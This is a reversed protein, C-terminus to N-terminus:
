NGKENDKYKGYIIKGIHYFYDLVNMQEKEDYIGVDRFDAEYGLLENSNIM